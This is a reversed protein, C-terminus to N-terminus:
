AVFESLNAEVRNLNDKFDIVFTKPVFDGVCDPKFKTLNEYLNQKNTIESHNPFYNVTKSSIDKRLLDKKVADKGQYWILCSAEKSATEVCGAEELISKVLQFNNGRHLYFTNPVQEKINKSSKSKKRIIFKPASIDITKHPSTTEGSSILPALTTKGKSFDKKPENLKPTGSSYISLHRKWLM